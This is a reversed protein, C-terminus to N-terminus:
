TLTCRLRFSLVAARRMGLGGALPVRMKKSRIFHSHLRRDKKWFTVARLRKRSLFRMAMVMTPTMPQTARKTNPKPM